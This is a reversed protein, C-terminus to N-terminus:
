ARVALIPVTAIHLLQHPTSGLIAGTLPREGNTGVIIMRAGREQALETLALAAPRDVLEAEVPVGSEAALELARHLREDGLERAAARLDASEGGMPPEYGFAVIVKVELQKALSLAERLASRAAPSGDFGVVLDGGPV